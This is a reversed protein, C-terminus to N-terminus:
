AVARQQQLFISFCVRWRLGVKLINTLLFLAWGECGHYCFLWAYKGVERQKRDLPWSGVPVKYNEEQVDEFGAEEIWSKMYEVIRFTKGFKEGAELFTQSWIHLFHDEPFVGEEAKFTINMEAQELWGGPAM